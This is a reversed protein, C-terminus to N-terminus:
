RPSLSSGQCNDGYNEVRSRHSMRCCQWFNGVGDRWSYSEKKHLFRWTSILCAHQQSRVYIVFEFLMKSLSWMYDWKSSFNMTLKATYNLQNWALHEKVLGNVDGHSWVIFFLLLLQSLVQLAQVVARLGVMYRHQWAWSTLCLRQQFKPGIVCVSIAAWWFRDLSDLSIFSHDHNDHLSLLCIM